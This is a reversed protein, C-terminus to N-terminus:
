STKKTKKELNLSSLLGIALGITILTVVIALELKLSLNFSRIWEEILNTKTIDQQIFFSPVINRSFILTYFIYSFFCSLLGHLSKALIYIKTNIDTKNLMSISQSHISLGSWAILFSISCIKSVISIEKISSVIKCGNTMEIMGSLFGTIIEPNLEFPVIYLITDSITNLINTTNLIEIIVSYLIIFGGVIVMSNFSSKIADSMITSFTRGDKKRALLLENFASKIYNKKIPKDVKYSSKGYLKFLLGVSIAGLYHSVALVPGINPDKLMGVSVAGIIFLPGSTSCFSVLRQAEIKNITRQQRLKSVLTVGIPYGSTISMAFPFAGEGSVGFLPTMIPQLLVGIFKVIGIGILIESGILFPLLSPLVITLWVSLGNKAANVASQPFIVLSLVIALTLFSTLYIKLNLLFGKRKIRNINKYLILFTILSLITILITM